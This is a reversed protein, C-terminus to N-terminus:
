HSSDKLYRSPVVYKSTEHKNDEEQEDIEYHISYKVLWGALVYGSIKSDACKKNRIKFFERRCTAYKFRIRGDVRIRCTDPNM